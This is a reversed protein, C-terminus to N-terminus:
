LSYAVHATQVSDVEVTAKRFADHLSTHRKEACVSCLRKSPCDTVKHKGLCNICLLHNDAYQKREVASKRKYEDCLM